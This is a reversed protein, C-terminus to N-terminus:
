AKLQINKQVPYIILTRAILATRTGRHCCQQAMHDCPVVIHVARKTACLNGRIEARLHSEAM